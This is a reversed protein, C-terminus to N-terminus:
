FLFALVYCGLLIFLNDHICLGALPILFFLGDTFVSICLLFYICILLNYFIANACYYNYLNDAGLINAGIWGAAIDRGGHVLMIDKYYEMNFKKHMFFTNLHEAQHHPDVFVQNNCFLEGFAIIVLIFIFAIFLNRSVHNKITSFDFIYKKLMKYLPIFILYILLYLFFFAVDLQKNYNEFVAIGTYFDKLQGVTFFVSVFNFILIAIAISFISNILLDYINLDKFFINSFKM